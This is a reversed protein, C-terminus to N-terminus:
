LRAEPIGRFERVVSQLLRRTRMPGVQLDFPEPVASIVMGMRQCGLLGPPLVGKYAERWHVGVACVKRQVPRRCHQGEIPSPRCAVGYRATRCPAM